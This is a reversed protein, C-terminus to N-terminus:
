FFQDQTMDQGLLPTPYIHYRIFLVLYIDNVESINNSRIKDVFAYIKGKVQYM